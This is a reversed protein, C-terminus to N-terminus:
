IYYKKFFYKKLFLIAFVYKQLCVKKSFTCFSTPVFTIPIAFVYKQLCVKTFMSNLLLQM